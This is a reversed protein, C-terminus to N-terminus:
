GPSFLGAGCPDNASERVARRGCCIIMTRKMRRNASQPLRTAIRAIRGDLQEFSVANRRPGYYKDRRHKKRLL